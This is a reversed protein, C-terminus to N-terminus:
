DTRQNNESDTGRGNQLTGGMTLDLTGDIALLAM